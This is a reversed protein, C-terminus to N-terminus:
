LHPHSIAIDASAHIRAVNFPIYCISCLTQVNVCYTANKFM